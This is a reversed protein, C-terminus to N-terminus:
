RWALTERQHRNLSGNNETAEKKGPVQDGWGNKMISQLLEPYQYKEGRPKTKKNNEQDNTKQSQQVIKTFDTGSM